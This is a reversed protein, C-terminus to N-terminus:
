VGQDCRQGAEVRGEAPFPVIRVTAAEPASKAFIPWATAAAFAPSVIQTAAPWVKVSGAAITTFLGTLM